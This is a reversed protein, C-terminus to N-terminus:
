DCEIEKTVSWIYPDVCITNGNQTVDWGFLFGDGILKAAYATGATGVILGTLLGSLYRRM